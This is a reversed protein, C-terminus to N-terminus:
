GGGDPGSAPRKQHRNCVVAAKVQTDVMIDDLSPLISADFQGPQSAPAAADEL